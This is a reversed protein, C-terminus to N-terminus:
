DKRGSVAVHIGLGVIALGGAGGILEMRRASRAFWARATGAILGWLSDSILVIAVFVLGLLLLQVTAHGRGPDVFQPLMAAFFVATKPNTVGVVFGQRFARRSGVPDAATTMAAALDRRHRFTRVGLYILYAAGIWKLATFVVASQAVITGIGLAVAIVLTYAGVAGGLVSTLATRRGFALARSIVFLVSPGPVVVLVTAIITFALLRDPALVVM